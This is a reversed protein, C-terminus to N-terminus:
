FPIPRIELRLNIIKKNREFKDKCGITRVKKSVQKIQLAGISETDSASLLIRQPGAPPGPSVCQPEPPGPSLCPLVPSREGVAFPSGSVGACHSAHVLYLSM